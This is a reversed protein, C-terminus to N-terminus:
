SPREAATKRRARSARLNALNGCTLVDHWAGSNNPSRDYFAGPCRPNRCTKLRRFTNSVQAQHAEIAMASMIRRWGQGVPELVVAGDPGVVANVDVEAISAIPEPGGEHGGRRRVAEAIRTRVGRLEGLDDKTLRVQRYTRGTVESWQRLADDAWEQASRVSDLLDATEPRARPRTNLFDQILALGGPATSLEYRQSAPWSM